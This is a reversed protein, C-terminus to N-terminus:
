VDVLMELSLPTGKSEPGLFRMGVVTAMQSPHLGHGPRVSRVNMESVVDGARVDQAIFLSRAFTRSREGREDLNYTVSGLLQEATRVAAVLETFEGQDLSFHADVGGISKDMIFHKEIIKAGLATAVVPAVYGSTHDSVGPVVDFRRGIDAITLLNADEPRAPYESTCKLVAIQDNGAARCADVALQIDDARAVGSSIIVPKNTRAVCEILPIDTIEFSAIKYAPANLEELLEVASHDFPSSFCILDLDRASDFLAAHWAWPLAAERYLDHLYQDDWATGHRIRFYDNRVNLTITDATYTQLKIADAGTEKIARISKLAVDLDNGHNASLEAVIFTPAM